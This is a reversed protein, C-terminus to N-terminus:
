RHVQGRLYANATKLRDIYNDLAEILEAATAIAHRLGLRRQDENFRGAEDVAVFCGAVLLTAGIRKLVVNRLDDALLDVMREVIERVMVDSIYVATAQDRPEAYREKYIKEIIEDLTM